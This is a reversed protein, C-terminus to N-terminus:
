EAAKSFNFKKMKFFSKPHSTSTAGGGNNFMVNPTSDHSCKMPMVDSSFLSNLRCVNWDVRVPSANASLNMSCPVIPSNGLLVDEVKGACTALAAITASWPVTPM